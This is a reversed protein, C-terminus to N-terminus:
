REEGAEDLPIDDREPDPANGAAETGTDAGLQAAGCNATGTNHISGNCAGQAAAKLEEVLTVLKRLSPAAVRSHNDEMAAEDEMEKGSLIEGCKTPVYMRVGNGLDVLWSEEVLGTQRAKGM